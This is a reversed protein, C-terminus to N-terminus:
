LEHDYITKKKVSPSIVLQLSLSPKKKKKKRSMIQKYM